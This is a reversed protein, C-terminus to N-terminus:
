YFVKELCLGGAPACKGARKRDKSEIIEIIDYPEIKDRGVMILTGVIIRVMNYLFGDGSVYIKILEKDIKFKIDWITRVTTKVSGGLSRFANFDHNGIFYKSAEIMKDVDLKWKYQYIYDRGMAKPLESNYITYCYTKGKTHYRSHFEEPVEESDLIVVDKPLKTNIADRFKKEPIRSNTKFTAIYEKAHVGSDTRSCGILKIKEKVISEIANQLVTEVTRGNIQKQWGCFNTGDYELKLKINRM